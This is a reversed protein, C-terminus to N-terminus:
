AMSEDGQEKAKAAEAEHDARIATARWRALQQELTAIAEKAQGRLADIATERSSYCEDVPYVDCNFRLLWDGKRDYVLQDLARCRLIGLRGELVFSSIVWFPEGIAVTGRDGLEVENEAM